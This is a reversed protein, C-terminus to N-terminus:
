PRVFDERMPTFVDVLIGDDLAVVGHEVGSPILFGDGTHLVKKESGIMVEFSGSQILTVQMHVHKHLKGVSGKKFKVLTMMIAKDYGLVKRQIGGGLDEWVVSSGEVFIDLAM